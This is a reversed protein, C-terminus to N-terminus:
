RRPHRDHARESALAHHNSRRAHEEGSRAPGYDRNAVHERGAFLHRGTARRFRRRRERHREPRPGVCPSGRRSSTKRASDDFPKRRRQHQRLRGASGIRPGVTRLPSCPSSAVSQLFSGSDGRAPGARCLRWGGSPDSDPWWSGAMTESGDGSVPRRPGVWRATFRRQVQRPKGRVRGVAPM